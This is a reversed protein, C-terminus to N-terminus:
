PPHSYPQPEPPDPRSEKATSLGPAMVWKQSPSKLVPPNDSHTHAHAHASSGTEGGHYARIAIATFQNSNFKQSCSKLYDKTIGKRGSIEAESQTLCERGDHVSCFQIIRQLEHTRKYGAM